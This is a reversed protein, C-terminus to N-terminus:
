INVDWTNQIDKYDDIEQYQIHINNDLVILNQKLIRILSLGALYQVWNPFIKGTCKIKLQMTSTQDETKVRTYISFVLM